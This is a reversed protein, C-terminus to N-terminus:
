IRPLTITFTTPNNKVSITGGHQEVINKCTSLGLGTGQQKTTVLPDFINPLIESPIGSGSDTIEINVFKTFGIIKVLITGKGETAQIANLIINSFVTRLKQKDCEIKEDNQPLSIELSNPIELDVLSKTILDKLSHIQKNLPTSRVFNLVDDIQHSMRQISNEMRTFHDQMRKDKPPYELKMIECINKIVSLPNRLDHAIRASLEGIATLKETKLKKQAIALEKETDISTKFSHVMSQISKALDGVENSSTPFIIDYNGKSVKDAMMKLKDIPRSISRSAFYSLVVAITVLIPIGIYLLFEADLLVTKLNQVSDDLKTTSIDLIADYDQGKSQAYDELADRYLKKNEAYEQGDLISIADTIKGEKVLEISRHELEVLRLNAEDINQFFIKEEQTGIDCAEKIISDLKPESEFYIKSWKEDTTFAYNRAAQTLVEDYYRVYIALNNLRSTTKLGELNAALDNEIIFLSNGVKFFGIIGHPTTIAIIILFGFLM